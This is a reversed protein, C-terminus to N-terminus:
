TGAGGDEDHLDLDVRGACAKELVTLASAILEPGIGDGRIVGIKYRNM